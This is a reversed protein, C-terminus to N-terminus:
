EIPLSESGHPPNGLGLDNAVAITFVTICVKM